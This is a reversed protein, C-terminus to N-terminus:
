PGSDEVDPHAHGDACQRREAAGRLPAARRGPVEGARQVDFRAPGQPVLLQKTLITTVDRFKRLIDAFTQENEATDAGIKALLYANKLM